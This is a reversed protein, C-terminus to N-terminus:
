DYYIEISEKISKTEIFIGNEPYDKNRIEIDVKILNGRDDYLRYEGDKKFM